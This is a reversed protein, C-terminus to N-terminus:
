VSGQRSMGSTSRREVNPASAVTGSTDKTARSGVSPVSAGMGRTPMTAFNEAFQASGVTRQGHINKTESLEVSHANVDTGHISGREQREVDPASRATKPGITLAKAHWEAYQANRAIQPGIM